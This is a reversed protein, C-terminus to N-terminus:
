FPERLKTLLNHAQDLKAFMTLNSVTGSVLCDVNHCAQYAELVAGLAIFLNAKFETQARM